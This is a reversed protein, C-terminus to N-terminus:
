FWFRRTFSPVILHATERYTSIPLQSLCRVKATEVNIQAQRLVGRNKTKWADVCKTIKKILGAEPEVDTVALLYFSRPELRTGDVIGIRFQEVVEQWTGAARQTQVLTSLANVLSSSILDHFSARGAKVALREAFRPLDTRAFAPRPSQDLLLAKSVPYNIRLDVAFTGDGAGLDATVLFRSLLKGAQVEAAIGNDMIRCVPSVQVWPHKAGQGVGIVDCTQSTIVAYGTDNIVGTILSRGAQSQPGEEGTIIDTGSPAIWPVNAGIQILDGQQWADLTKCTEESWKTALLGDITM